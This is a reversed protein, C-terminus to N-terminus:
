YLLKVESNNILSIIPSKGIFEAYPKITSQLIKYTEKADKNNNICEYIKQQIKIEAVDLYSLQEKSMCDRKNKIGKQIDFLSKDLLRTINSYLLDPRKAYTSDPNKENHLKLLDSVADILQKRSKKGDKRTSLWEQNNHNLEVQLLKKKMQHFQKNILKKFFRVKETNKLYMILLSTQEENLKAFDLPRGTKPKAIEFRLVGFEKLDNEYKKIMRFISRHELETQESIILSTTLPIKNELIVLDKM